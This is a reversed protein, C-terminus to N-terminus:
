FYYRAAVNSTFIQWPNNMASTAILLTSDKYTIEPQAVGLADTYAGRSWKASRTMVYMGVSGELSLAPIGIFGFFVEAGARAGVQLM